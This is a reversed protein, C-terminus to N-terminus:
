ENSQGFLGPKQLYSKHVLLMYFENVIKQALIINKGNEHGQKKLSKSIQDALFVDSFHAAESEILKFIASIDSTFLKSIVKKQEPIYFASTEPFFPIFQLRSITSIM